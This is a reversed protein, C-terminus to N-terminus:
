SPTSPSSPPGHWTVHLPMRGGLFRDGALIGMLLAADTMTPRMRGQGYCAPGPDAGASDPGVQVEGTPSVSVISGGGAGLTVIDTSLANVILDHEIEFTTNVWPRGDIVVSIDCSTGGVDACILNEDGIYGGLHASSVTGAAPGGVVLRYPREM